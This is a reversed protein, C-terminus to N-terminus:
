ASAAPAAANQKFFLFPNSFLFLNLFRHHRTQFQFVDM